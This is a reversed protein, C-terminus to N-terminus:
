MWLSEIATSLSMVSDKGSEIAIRVNEIAISFSMVPDWVSEIERSVGIIAGWGSEIAIWLGLLAIEPSMARVNDAGLQGTCSLVDRCQRQSSAEDIWGNSQMPCM